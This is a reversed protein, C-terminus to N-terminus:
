YYYLNLLHFIFYRPIFTWYRPVYYRVTPYKRALMIASLLGAPGAGVVVADVHSSSTSTPTSTLEAVAVSRRVEFSRLPTNPPLFGSVHRAFLLLICPVATSHM